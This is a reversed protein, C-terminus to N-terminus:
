SIKLNEIGQMIYRNSVEKVIHAVQQLYYAASMRDHQMVNQGAVNEQM